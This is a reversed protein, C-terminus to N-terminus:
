IVGWHSYSDEREYYTQYEYSSWFNHPLHKCARISIQEDDWVLQTEWTEEHYFHIHKHDVVFIM